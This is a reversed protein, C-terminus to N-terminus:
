PIRYPNVEQHLLKERGHKLHVASSLILSASEKVMPGFAKIPLTELYPELCALRKDKKVQKEKSKPNDDQTKSWPLPTELLM